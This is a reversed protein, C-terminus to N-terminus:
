QLSAAAGCPRPHQTCFTARVRRRASALNGVGRTTPVAQRFAFPAREDDDPLVMCAHGDPRESVGNPTCKITLVTPEGNRRDMGGRSRGSRSARTRTPRGAAYFDEFTMCVPKVALDTEISGTSPVNALVVEEDFRPGAEFVVGDPVDPNQQLRGDHHTSAASSTPRSGNNQGQNMAKMKDLGTSGMIGDTFGPQADKDFDEPFYDGVDTAEMEGSTSPMWGSGAGFVVGGEEDAFLPGVRVHTRQPFLFASSAGLALALVLLRAM